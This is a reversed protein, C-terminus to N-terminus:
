HVLHSVMPESDLTKDAVSKVSHAKTSKKVVESQHEQQEKQKLENLTFEATDFLTNEDPVAFQEPYVESCSSSELIEAEDAHEVNASPDGDVSEEVAADLTSEEAAQEDLLQQRYGEEAIDALHQLGAEIMIKAVDLKADHFFRLIEPSFRMTMVPQTDGSDEKQLAIDGNALEVIEYLKSM